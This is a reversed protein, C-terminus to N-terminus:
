NQSWYSEARKTAIQHNMTPVVDGVDVYFHLLSGYYQINPEHMVPMVNVVLLFHGRTEWLDFNFSYLWQPNDGGIEILDGIELLQYYDHLELIKIANEIYTLAYPGLVSEDLMELDELFPSRGGFPEWIICNM